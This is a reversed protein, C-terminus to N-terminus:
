EGLAAALEAYQKASIEGRQFAALGMDLAANIADASSAVPAVYELVDDVHLAITECGLVSRVRFAGNVGSPTCNPCHDTAYKVMWEAAGANGRSGACLWSVNHGCKACPANNLAVSYADDAKKGPKQTAVRHIVAKATKVNAPVETANAKTTSMITVGGRWTASHSTRRYTGGHMWQRMTRSMAKKRGCILFFGGLVAM